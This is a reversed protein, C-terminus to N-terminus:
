VTTNHEENEEGTLKLTEKKDSKEDKKGKVKKGRKLCDAITDPIELGRTEPIFFIATFSCLALTTFLGFTVSRGYINSLEKTFPALVSAFRSAVSCTGVSLQRIVTPFSEVTLVYITHYCTSTAYKMVTGLWIRLSGEDPKTAPITKNRLDVNYKNKIETLLKLHEYAKDAEEATLAANNTTTNMLNPNASLQTTLQKNGQEEMIFSVTLGFCCIIMFTYAIRSLTRRNLREIILYLMTNAVFSAATFVSINLYLNDGFTDANFIASYAILHNTFWCLYLICCIGLMKPIAWLHWVKHKKRSKEKKEEEEFHDILKDIRRELIEPDVNKYKMQAAERLVRKAEDYRGKVINWRISEPVLHLYFLAIIEITTVTAQVWRFNPVYYFFGIMVFHGIYWSNEVMISLVSRKKPGVTEMILLVGTLFRGYAAVGLFFRAILFILISPAFSQGYGALIELFLIVKFTPSRGYRDSLFGVVISSFAYGVQYVAKSISIYKDNECILDFENIITTTFVTRDYEYKQCKDICVNKILNFETETLNQAIDACWFDSKAAYFVIGYNQFPSILYIIMYFVVFKQQWPGYNGIVKSICDIKEDDDFKREKSNKSFIKSMKSIYGNDKPKDKEDGTIENLNEDLKHEKSDKAFLKSMLSRKHDKEENPVNENNNNLNEDMETLKDTPKSSM